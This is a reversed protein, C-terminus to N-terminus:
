SARFDELAFSYHVAFLSRARLHRNGHVCYLTTGWKESHSFPPRENRLVAQKQWALVVWPLYRSAKGRIWENSATPTDGCSYQAYKLAADERM